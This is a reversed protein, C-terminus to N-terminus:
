RARPLPALAGLALVALADLALCRGLGRVLVCGGVLASGHAEEAPFLGSRRHIDQDGPEAVRTGLVRTVPVVDAPHDDVLQRTPMAPRELPLEASAEPVDPQPVRLEREQLGLGVHVLRARRDLRGRRVVLQRRLLHEDDVVVDVELGSAELSPEAAAKGAVVPKARDSLAEARLLEQPEPHADATGTAAVRTGDGVVDEGGERRLVVGLGDDAACAVGDLQEGRSPSSSVWRRKLQPPGRVRRQPRSTLGHLGLRDRERCSAPVRRPVSEEIAHFCPVPTGRPTTTSATAGGSGRPRGLVIARRPAIGAPRM